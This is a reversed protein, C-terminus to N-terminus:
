TPRAVPLIDGFIPQAVESSFELLINGFDVMLFFAGLISFLWNRQFQSCDM